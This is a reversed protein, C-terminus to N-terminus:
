FESCEMSEFRFQIQLCIQLGDWEKWNWIHLSHTWILFSSQEALVQAGGDSILLWCHCILIREEERSKGFDKVQLASHGLSQRIAQTSWSFSWLKRSWSRHTWQATPYVNFQNKFNGKAGREWGRRGNGVRGTSLMILSSCNRQCGIYDM